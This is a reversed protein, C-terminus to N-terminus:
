MVRHWLIAFTWQPPLDRELQRATLNRHITRAIVCAVDTPLPEQAEYAVAILDALRRPISALILALSDTLDVHHLASDLRLENELDLGGLPLRDARDVRELCHRYVEDRQEPSTTVPQWEGWQNRDTPWQGTVVWASLALQQNWDDREVRRLKALGYAKSGIQKKKRM